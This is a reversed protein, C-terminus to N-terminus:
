VSNRVFKHVLFVAAAVAAVAVPVLLLKRKWRCGCEEKKVKPEIVGIKMKAMIELADSSHGVDEFDDTADIGAHELLIALGGPHELGYKSVQVLTILVPSENM